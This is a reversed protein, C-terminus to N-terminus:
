GKNIKKLLPILQDLSTIVPVSTEEQPWNRVVSAHKLWIPHIGVAQAGYIDNQLDDGVFVAESPLLGLGDLCTLFPARDPKPPIGGEGALIIVKFYGALDPFLKLRHKGSDVQGQTNSILALCYNESLRELVKKTEPFLRTKSNVLEWYEDEMNKLVILEQDKHFHQYIHGWLDKRSFNSNSQYTRRFQRYSTLFNEWNELELDAFIMRQATKEALRFGEASDALTQGFDFIVAKIM